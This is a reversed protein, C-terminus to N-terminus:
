PAVNPFLDPKHCKPSWKIPLLKKNKIEAQYYKELLMNIYFNHTEYNYFAVCTPM